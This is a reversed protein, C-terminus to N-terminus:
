LLAVSCFSRVIRAPRALARHQEQQPQRPPPLLPQLPRQQVSSGGSPKPVSAATKAAAVHSMRPVMYSPVACGPTGDDQSAAAIPLCSCHWRWAQMAALRCAPCAHLWGCQVWGGVKKHLLLTTLLVDAFPHGGLESARRRLNTDPDVFAHASRLLLSQEPRSGWTISQPFSIHTDPPRAFAVRGGNHEGGSGVAVGLLQEALERPM